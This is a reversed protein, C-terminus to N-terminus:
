ASNRFSGVVRSVERVVVVVLLAVVAAWVWVM